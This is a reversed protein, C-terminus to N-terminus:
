KIGMSVLDMSCAKHPLAFPSTIWCDRQLRLFTTVVWDTRRFCTAMELLIGGLLFVNVSRGRKEYRSNVEPAMYMSTGRQGENLTATIEEDITEQSIGFDALIITEGKVLINAPKLDKSKRDLYDIAQILCGAWVKMLVRLGDRDDGESLSDVHQMYVELNTDAVQLMIISLEKRHIYV